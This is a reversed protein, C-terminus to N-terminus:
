REIEGLLAEAEKGIEGKADMAMVKELLRVAEEQNGMKLQAVALNKHAKPSDPFLQAIMSFVQVAAQVQEGRGSDLLRLGQQSLEQEFDFFAYRPDAVMQPLETVLTMMQGSSYLDTIYQMPDPHFNEADFTLAAKLVPDQNTRYQAFTMEVPVSPALWDANEWAPKDQWWAYSLYVPVKSNPLEVPRNDGYFNINEGTPEGVFIVNTYNDLENVLNQCASFTRRGLIVYLRGLRNIEQAEIIRTVIAKNKYNNGGGNLRVDLILKEVKNDEIFQFVRDYFTPTDEAPDDRIKSHRVYLAQHEPLHEFYYVKDLNKLYLPLEVPERAASWDENQFVYGYDTPVREGTPLASFAVTFPNGDKELKFEVAQGLSDTIGQAHLVEPIRLHNLGYAKFYQDNEVSVAPRIRTLAEAIPVGNIELVKAGVAEQQDQHAGQVYVGDAYQYLNLPLQHFTYPEQRFSVQTHGYEFLGIIRALGVIIEHPELEPIQAHLEEVAADFAAPTTKVFLFPYDEHITEQLFRLDAQWQATALPVQADASLLFGGFLLIFLYRMYYYYLFTAVELGYPAESTSSLGLRLYSIPM